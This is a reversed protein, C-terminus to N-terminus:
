KCIEELVDVRELLKAITATQAKIIECMSSMKCALNTITNSTYAANNSAFIVSNSSYVAANIANSSDILNSTIARAYACLANSTWVATNSSFTAKNLAKPFANSM